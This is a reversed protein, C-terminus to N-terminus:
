KSHRIQPQTPLRIGMPVNVLKVPLKAYNSYIYQITIQIYIAIFMYGQNNTHFLGNSLIQYLQFTNAKSSFHLLPYSDSRSMKRDVVGSDCFYTRQRAVRKKGRLMKWSYNGM